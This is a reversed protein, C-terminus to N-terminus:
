PQAIERLLHDVSFRVEVPYLSKVARGGLEGPDFPTAYFAQAAARELDPPLPEGRAQVRQVKGTEDVHLLLEARYQGLPTSPPYDIHVESRPRAPRDLRSRPLYLDGPVGPGAPVATERLAAAPSTSVLNEATEGIHTPPQPQVAAEPAQPASGLGPRGAEAPRPAISRIAVWRGSEGGARRVDGHDARITQWVLGHILAAGALSALLLRPHRQAAAASPLWGAM